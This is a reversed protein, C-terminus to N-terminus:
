FPYTRGAGGNHLMTKEASSLVKNWIGLEDFDMTDGSTFRITYGMNDGTSPAYDSDNITASVGEAFGATNWIEIRGTHSIRDLTIFLLYFQGFSVAGTLTIDKFVGAKAFRFFVINTTATWCFAYGNTVAAPDASNTKRFFCTTLGFPQVNFKVWFAITFNGSNLEFLPNIVNESCNSTGGASPTLHIGNDIKATVLTGELPVLFPSIDGVDHTLNNGDKSNFKWYAMLGETLISNGGGQGGIADGSMGVGRFRRDSTPHRFSTAIM